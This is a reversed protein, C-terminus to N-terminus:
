LRRFSVYPTEIINIQFRSDSSLKQDTALQEIRELYLQKIRFVSGNYRQKWLTLLNQLDPKAIRKGYSNLGIVLEGHPVLVRELVDEPDIFEDVPAPEITLTYNVATVDISWDPAKLLLSELDQWEATDAVVFYITAGSYEGNNNVVYLTKM